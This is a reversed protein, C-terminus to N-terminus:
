INAIKNETNNCLYRNCLKQNLRKRSEALAILPLIVLAAYIGKSQAVGTNIFIFIYAIFQYISSKNKWMINFIPLIILLMPVIGMAAFYILLRAGAANGNYLANLLGYFNTFGYGLPRSTVVQLMQYYVAMRANGSSAGMSQGTIRSGELTVANLKDLLFLSLISDTGRIYYDVFVIVFGAILIRRIMHNEPFIIKRQMAGLFILVILSIYGTTSTTTLMTICLIILYKREKKKNIFLSRSNFLLVFIAASLVIQYVGPETFIGNNRFPEFSRYVYLWIGKFTFSTGAWAVEYSTFIPLNYIEPAVNAIGYCILSIVSFFIVIKVFRTGCKDIDMKYATYAVLLHELVKQMEDIFQPDRHYFQLMVMIFIVVCLYIIERKEIKLKWIIIFAISTVFIINRIINSNNRYLGADQCLLLLYLLFYQCFVRISSKKIKMM